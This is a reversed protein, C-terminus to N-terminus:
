IEHIDERIKGMEKDLQYAAEASKKLRELLYVPMNGDYKYKLSHEITAWYNMVMTRVQIEVKVDKRGFATFVPYDIHIHYSRYGSPKAEKVYDRERLIKLDYGDRQRVIDVAKDIDEVFRCILRIGALDEMKEELEDYLINKRSAKELISGISKVRGDVRDIPSYIKRRNYENLIGNFKVLLENVAQERPLLLEDWNIKEVASV